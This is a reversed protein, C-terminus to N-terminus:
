PIRLARCAAEYSEELDLPVALDAALWLPLTPLRQGIELVHDWAEFRWHRRRNDVVRCAVAYLPPEAAPATLGMLGMTERFLNSARITVPDVITVSVRQHLLAACKTAFARRNEPRDKNSPSVLEIVAVLRHEYEVDYVLVEYEDATPPDIEDTISPRAPAWVATAVGGGGDDSTFPEAEAAEHRDDDRELTGVDVEFFAGLRVRPEAAYQPPLKDALSQVITGPWMAHLSEWAAYRRVPPRFHDRLPM